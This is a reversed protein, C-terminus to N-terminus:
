KKIKNLLVMLQNKVTLSVEKGFKMRILLLYLYLSYGIVACYATSDLNEPISIDNPKWNIFPEQKEILMKVILAAVTFPELLITHQTSTQKEYIQTTKKFPLLWHFSITKGWFIYLLTEKTINILVYVIAAFLFGMLLAGSIMIVLATICTLILLFVYLVNLLRYFFNNKFIVEDEKHLSM